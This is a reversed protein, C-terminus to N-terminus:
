AGDLAPVRCLGRCSRADLRAACRCGGCCWVAVPIWSCRADGAPLQATGLGVFIPATPGPGFLGRAGCLRVPLRGRAGCSAQLKLCWGARGCVTLPLCGALPCCCLGVRLGARVM